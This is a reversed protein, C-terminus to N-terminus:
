ENYDTFETEDEFAGDKEFIGLAMKLDFEFRAHGDPFYWYEVSKLKKNLEMDKLAKTVGVPNQEYMEVLTDHIKDANSRIQQVRKGKGEYVGMTEVDKLTREYVGGFFNEKAYDWTVWDDGLEPKYGEYTEGTKQNYWQGYQSLEKRAREEAQERIKDWKAQEYSKITEGTLEVYDDYTIDENILRDFQLNKYDEKKKEERQIKRTAAAKQATQKREQKRYKEGSVKTVEIRENKRGKNKIVEVEYTAQKYRNKDIKKLANIDRRTIKSPIDPVAIKSVDYGREELRRINQLLNKRVRRYELVTKSPKKSKAM